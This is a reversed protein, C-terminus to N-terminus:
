RGVPMEARKLVGGGGGLEYGVEEKVGMEQPRVSGGRGEGSM